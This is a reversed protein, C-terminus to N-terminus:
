KGGGLALGVAVALYPEARELEEPPLGVKGVRLRQFPRGYQVPIGLLDELRERLNPMLTAGGTLLARELPVAEASVAYYDMSGRIEDLFREARDAILRGRDDMPATMQDAPMGVSMKAAEAEEATVGLANVLTETIAAGGSVVIRVFRPRGAQHVILSTVAAGADILLEADGTPLVEPDVMARLLAFPNLDLGIPELRAARVVEVVQEVMSRQAAVVLVRSIRQGGDTELNGLLHLDLIAQDVAIPLQDGVQLPLSKRLDAEPLYPLDMQRVIVQQNALGLAVKRSGFKFVQWLRRLAAVAQDPDVIEGDRIVGPAIPVQGLRQLTAGGRGTKVQVARVASSGLDLGVRVSV